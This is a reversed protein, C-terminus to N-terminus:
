YEQQWAEGESRPAPSECPYSAGAWKLVERELLVAGAAIHEPSTFEDPHHSLGNRSPVFILGTPCLRAMNMADHGAGSSMVKYSLSGEECSERLSAMMEQDLLVPKEDSLKHVTITCHREREMREVSSMLRSIVRDRSPVSTGRIDLKMEAHDPIVNMAGPKVECVGVTAVTGYQEEAKAARELELAIEAASLFADQRSGMPTTGSHAAHGQVAITFRSPAAIGSVIGIEIGETELVPGQEIHLELFVKLERAQRRALEVSMDLSCEQLVEIFSLGQADHLSAVHELNLLGTMAKSGITSVGFRSSEECAFIILEVPHQTCIMRDNLSRIVELAAAVGLAGDYRGGNIVTDLHSGFAVIPAEPNLGERRAIVNGFSDTRVSMGESRCLGSVYEIAEREVTSYALRNMGKDTCGFRNIDQLTQTLRELKVKEDGRYIQTAGVLVYSMMDVISVM